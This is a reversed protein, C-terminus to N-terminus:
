YWWRKWWPIDASVAEVSRFYATKFDAIDAGVPKNRGYATRNALEILREAEQKTMQPVASLCEAEEGFGDTRWQYGAALLLRKWEIYVGLCDSEELRRKRYRRVGKVLFPLCLMLVLAGEVIHWLTSKVLDINWHFPPLLRGQTGGTTSGSRNEKEQYNVPLARGYRRILSELQDDELSISAAVGEAAPTVEVPIWGYDDRFIEVWAHAEKDTVRAKYVSDELRFSEPQIVYGTAYRAPIGYLRYLLVATAAFHQCYGRGNEFLFYEVIDTERSGWGPTRTYVANSHLLYLIFDEIEEPEELPHQRVLETLRPLLEEPVQTYAERAQEKYFQQLSLYEPEGEYNEPIRMDKEEFYFYVTGQRTEGDYSISRGYGKVSFYPIYKQELDEGGLQIVTLVRPHPNLAQQLQYNVNYYLSQFTNALNLASDSMGEAEAFVAEDEAPLWDGGLYEGGSFAKLYLAETPCESTELVLHEAGAPYLNGMSIRGGAVPEAAQGSLRNVTRLIGGEMEYVMQCIPEAWLQVVLVAFATSVVLIKMTTLVNGGSMLARRRDSKEGIAVPATVAGFGVIYFLLLLVMPISWELPRFFLPFIMLLCSIWHCRIVYDLFFLLLVGFLAYAAGERGQLVDKMSILLSVVGALYFFLSLLLKRGTKGAHRDETDTIEVFYGM